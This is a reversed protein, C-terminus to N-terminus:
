EASALGKAVNYIAYIVFGGVLLPLISEIGGALLAAVGCVTGVCVAWNKFKDFM